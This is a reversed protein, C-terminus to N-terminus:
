QTLSKQFLIKLAAEATENGERPEFLAADAMITVRGEGVTCHAIVGGEVIECDGAVQQDAVQPDAPATEVLTGASLIPLPLGDWDILRPGVPQGQDYELALGWRGLVPPVLASVIPHRPDGLSFDYKGTLMPDIAYFLRGGDRVWIDLAVNDAPSLGRPQIIALGSLGELAIPAGDDDALADLPFLDFQRELSARVWPPESAESGLSAFPDGEGWYIPLSTMLGIRPKERGEIDSQTDQSNGPSFMAWAVALLAAILLAVAVGICLLRASKHRQQTRM